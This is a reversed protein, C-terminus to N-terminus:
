NSHIPWRRLNPINNNSSVRSTHMINSRLCWSAGISMQQFIASKSLSYQMYIRTFLNVTQAHILPAHTYNPTHLLTRSYSLSLYKCSKPLTDYLNLYFFNTTSICYLPPITTMQYKLRLIHDSKRATYRSAQVHTTRIRQVWAVVHGHLPGLHMYPRAWLGGGKPGVMVDGGLEWTMTAVEELNRRSYGGMLGAGKVKEFTKKQPFLM